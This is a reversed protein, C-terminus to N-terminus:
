RARAVKLSECQHACCHAVSPASSRHLGGGRRVKRHRGRAGNRRLGPRRCRQVDHVDQPSRDAAQEAVHEVDGAALGFAAMADAQNDITRGAARAGVRRKGFKLRQKRKAKLADGDGALEARGINGRQACDGAVDSAGRRVHQVAVAGLTRRQRPERRGRRACDPDVRRVAARQDITRAGDAAAEIARQFPQQLPAGIQEQELAMIDGAQEAGLDAARRRQRPDHVVADGSALEGGNRGGGIRGIQDPKTFQPRDLREVHQDRRQRRQLAEPRRTVAVM